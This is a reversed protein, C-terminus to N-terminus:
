FFITFQFITSVHDIFLRIWASFFIAIIIGLLLLIISAVIVFGAFFSFFVNLYTTVSLNYNRVYFAFNLYFLLVFVFTKWTRCVIIIISFAFIIVLAIFDPHKSIVFFVSEECFFTIKMMLQRIWNWCSDFLFGKDLRQM